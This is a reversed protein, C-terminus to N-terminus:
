IGLMKMEKRELLSVVLDFKYFNKLKAVVKKLGENNVLQGNTMAPAPGVAITGKWEGEIMVLAYGNTQPKGPECGM